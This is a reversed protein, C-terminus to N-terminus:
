VKVVLDPHAKRLVELYQAKAEELNHLRLVRRKQSRSLGDPCWRPRHYKDELNEECSPKAWKDQPLMPGIRQFM